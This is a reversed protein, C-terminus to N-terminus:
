VHARGIKHLMTLCLVLPFFVAVLPLKRRTAAIAIIGAALVFSISRFLLLSELNLGLVRFMGALAYAHLKPVYQMYEATPLFRSLAQIPQAINTAVTKAWAIIFLDDIHPLYARETSLWLAGLAIVTLPAIYTRAAESGSLKHTM